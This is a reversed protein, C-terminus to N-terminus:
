EDIKNRLFIFHTIFYPFDIHITFANNELRERANINVILVFYANYFDWTIKQVTLDQTNTSSIELYILMEFINTVDIFRFVMPERLSPRPEIKLSIKIESLLDSRRSRSDIRRGEKSGSEGPSNKTPKSTTFGRKFLWFFAILGIVALLLILMMPYVM